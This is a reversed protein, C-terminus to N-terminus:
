IINHQRTRPRGRPRPIILPQNNTIALPQLEVPTVPTVPTAPTANRARRIRRPLPLEVNNGINPLIHSDPLINQPAHLRQQEELYLQQAFEEDKSCDMDYAVEISDSEHQIGVTSFLNNMLQQIKKSRYVDESNHLNVKTITNQNICEFVQLVADVVRKMMEIDKTANWIHIQANVHNILQEIIEVISELSESYSIMLSMNIIEDIFLNKTKEIAAREAVQAARITEAELEKEYVEQIRKRYELAHKTRYDDLADM